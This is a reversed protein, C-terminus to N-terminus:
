ASNMREVNNMAIDLRAVEQIITFILLLHKQRQYLYKKFKNMTLLCNRAEKARSDALPLM